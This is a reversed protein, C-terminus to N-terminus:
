AFLKPNSESFALASGHITDVIGCRFLEPFDTMLQSAMAAAGKTDPHVMDSYLYGEPWIGDDTAGVAKKFDVYRCGSNRVIDNVGNNVEIRSPVTPITCLVLEFGYQKQLTFLKELANANTSLSGNMGLCWFVYKPRGYQLSAVLDQYAQEANEGAIGSWNANSFGSNRIYSPWRQASTMGLYSDGFIWIDRDFASATLTMRINKLDGGDTMVFTKGNFLYKYTPIIIKQYFKERDKTHIILYLTSDFDVYMSVKIFSKFEINHQVTTTIKPEADKDPSYILHIETLTIKIYQGTYSNYGNGILLSSFNDFEAYCNISYGAKTYLPFDPLGIESIEGAALNGIDKILGPKVEPLADPTIREPILTEDFKPPFNETTYPKVTQNYKIIVNQRWNNISFRVYGTHRPVFTRDM